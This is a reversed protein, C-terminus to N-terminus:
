LLVSGVNWNQLIEYDWLVQVNAQIEYDQELILRENYNNWKITANTLIKLSNSTCLPACIISRDQIRFKRGKPHFKWPLRQQIV